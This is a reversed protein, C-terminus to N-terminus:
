KRGEGVTGKAREPEDSFARDLAARREADPKTTDLADWLAHNRAEIRQFIDNEIRSDRLRSNFTM